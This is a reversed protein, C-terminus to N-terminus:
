PKAFETLPKVQKFAWTMCIVRNKDSARQHGRRPRFPFPFFRCECGFFIPFSSLDGFNFMTKHVVPILHQMLAIHASGYRLNWLSCEIHAYRPKKIFLFMSQEIVQPPFILFSTYSKQERWLLVVYLFGQGLTTDREIYTIQHLGGLSVWFIFHNM